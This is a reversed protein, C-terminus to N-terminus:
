SSCSRVKLYGQDFSSVAAEDYGMGETNVNYSTEFSGERRPEYMNDDEGEETSGTWWYGHEQANELRRRDEEEQWSFSRHPEQTHLRGYHPYPDTLSYGSSHIPLSITDRRVHATGHGPGLSDMPAAVEGLPHSQIPSAPAPLGSPYSSRHHPAPASLSRKFMHTLSVKSLSSGPDPSPHEPSRSRSSKGGSDHDFPRDHETESTTSLPPPAVDSSTDPTSSLETHEDPILSLHPRRSSLSPSHRRSIASQRVHGQPMETIRNKAKEGRGKAEREWEAVAAELEAGKKGEVLLDTIKAYRQAAKKEKETEKKTKMKRERVKAVAKGKPKRPPEEDDIDEVEGGADGSAGRDPPDKAQMRGRRSPGGGGDKFKLRAMANAGPRFRWDPYRKRHEAQAIVAKAEWAEREERPLTKWYM